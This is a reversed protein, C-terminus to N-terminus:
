IKKGYPSYSYEGTIGQKGITLYRGAKSVVTRNMYTSLTHSKAEITSSLEYVLFLTLLLVMRINWLPPTYLFTRTSSLYNKIQSVM